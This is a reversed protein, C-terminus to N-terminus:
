VSVVCVARESDGDGVGAIKLALHLAATGSSLAVAHASRIQEAFENEFADLHPGVPAIWGSNLADLVLEREREGIHPPSLYIREAPM